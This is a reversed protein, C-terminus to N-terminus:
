IPLFGQASIRTFNASIYELWNSSVARAARPSVPAANADCSWSRLGARCELAM